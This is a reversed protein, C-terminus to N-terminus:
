LPKLTLTPAPGTGTAAVPRALDQMADALHAAMDQARSPAATPPVPAAHRALAQAELGQLADHLAALVFAGAMWCMLKLLGGFWLLPAAARGLEDCLAAPWDMAQRLFAAQRAASWADGHDGLSAVSARSVDRGFEAYLALLQQARAEDEATLLGLSRALRVGAQPGAEDLFARAGPRRLHLAVARALAAELVAQSKVVFLWDGPETRLGAYLGPEIGLREEVRPLVETVRQTVEALRSM